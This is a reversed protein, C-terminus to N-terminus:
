VPHLFLAREAQRRRTLGKVAVGGAHDWKLFENAAVDVEGSNLKKLLTSSTLAGVGLNYTFSVLAAFQNDNVPVKVLRAVAACDQLLHIKLFSYADEKSIPPDKMAVATGDPYHTTGIGITPIGVSDLYPQLKCGEFQEILNLGAQNVTRMIVLM